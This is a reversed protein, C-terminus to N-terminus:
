LIVSFRLRSISAQPFVFVSIAFAIPTEFDVTECYREPLDNGVSAVRERSHLKISQEASSISSIFSLYANKGYKIRQCGQESINDNM